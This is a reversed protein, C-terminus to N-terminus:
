LKTQLLAVPDADVIDSDVIGLDDLMLETVDETTTFPLLLTVTLILLFDSENVCSTM